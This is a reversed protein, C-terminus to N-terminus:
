LLKSLSSRNYDTNLYEDITDIKLHLEENSDAYSKVVLNLIVKGGFEEKIKIITKQSNFFSDLFAKKTVARGKEHERAKAFKWALLPDQYIYFIEVPRNKNLSRRINQIAKEFNSFTGDMLMSKKKDLVYDHLYEVGLASAGQIQNANKGNYHPIFDKIEDADIRIAQIRPIKLFNKSFETKGAGISGAMFISFPNQEPPSIKDNAFKERIERKHSKVFAIALETIKPM